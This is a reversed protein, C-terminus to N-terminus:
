WSETPDSDVVATIVAAAHIQERTPTMVACTTDAGQRTHGLRQARAICHHHHLEPGRRLLRAGSFHWLRIAQVRTLERRRKLLPPEASPM